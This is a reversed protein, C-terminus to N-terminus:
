QEGGYQEYDIDFDKPLSHWRRVDGFSNGYEDFWYGDRADFWAVCVQGDNTNILVPDSVGRKDLDPMEIKPDKSM